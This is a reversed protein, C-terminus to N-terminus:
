ASDSERTGKFEGMTAENPASIGDRRIVKLFTMGLIKLDLMISRNEVYWVDDELRKSWSVANRGNVQAWGTIGPRVDMRKRQRESYRSVYHLLLPRPGVLSMEGRIVNWLEPLEDMSTARLWRGFPTLRDSDPLPNGRQDVANLMSRLKVLKFPRGKLGPREQVFFM